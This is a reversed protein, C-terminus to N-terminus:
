GSVVECDFMQSLGRAPEFRMPVAVIAHAAAPHKADFGPAAVGDRDAGIIDGQSLGFIAASDRGKL